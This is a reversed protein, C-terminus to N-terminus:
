FILASFSLLFTFLPVSLRLYLLMVAPILLIITGIRIGRLLVFNRKGKKRQTEWWALKHATWGTQVTFMRPIEQHIFNEYQVSCLGKQVPAKTKFRGLVWADAAGSAPTPLTSPPPLLYSGPLARAASWQLASFAPDCSAGSPQPNDLRWCAPANQRTSRAWSLPRALPTLQVGQNPRNGTFRKCIASQKPKRRFYLLRM